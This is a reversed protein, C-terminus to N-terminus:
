GTAEEPEPALPEAQLEQAPEALPQEPEVPQAGVAKFASYEGPFAQAYTVPEGRDRSLSPENESAPVVTVRGDAHKVECVETDQGNLDHKRFTVEM